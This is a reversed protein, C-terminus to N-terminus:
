VCSELMVVWSELMVVWLQLTVVCVVGADSVWSELTVVCVVGVDSGMVGADSCM